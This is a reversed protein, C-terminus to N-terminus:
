TSVLPSVRGSAAAAAPLDRRAFDLVLSDAHRRVGAPGAAHPHPSAGGLAGIEQGSVQGGADALPVVQQQAQESRRVRPLDVADAARVRQGALHGDYGGRGVPVGVDVVQEQLHRHFFGRDAIALVAPIQERADARENAM